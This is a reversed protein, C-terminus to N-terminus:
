VLGRARAAAIAQTRSHVGLKGYVNRLHTKVTDLSVVLEDAIERNSSGILLLRFVDQERESLDDPGSIRQRAAAATAEGALLLVGTAYSAHPGTVARRLMALAPEGEDLLTRVYGEREALPLIAAFAALAEREDGRRWLACARLLTAELWRGARGAAFAADAVDGLLALIGAGAAGEAIRVRAYVLRAHEWVFDHESAPPLELAEAWRSSAALDGLLLHLHAALTPFFRIGQM